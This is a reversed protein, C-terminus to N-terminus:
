WTLLRLVGVLVAAGTAGVFRGRGSHPAVAASSFKAVLEFVAILGVLGFVAFVGVLEVVAVVSVSGGRSARLPAM